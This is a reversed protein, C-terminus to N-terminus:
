ASSSSMLIWYLSSFILSVPPYISAGPCSSFGGAAVVCALSCQGSSKVRPPMEVRADYAEASLNDVEGQGEQEVEVLFVVRARM